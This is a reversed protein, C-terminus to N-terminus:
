FSHQRPVSFLITWTTWPVLATSRLDLPWRVGHGWRVALGHAGCTLAEVRWSGVHWASTNARGGVLGLGPRQDHIQRSAPGSVGVRPRKKFLGEAKQSEVQRGLTERTPGQSNASFSGGKQKIAPNSRTKYKSDLVQKNWIKRIFELNLSEFPLINM